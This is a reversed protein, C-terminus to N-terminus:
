SDSSDCSQSCVQSKRLTDQTTFTWWSLCSSVWHTPPCRRTMRMRAHCRAAFHHPWVLICSNSFTEVITNLATVIKLILSHQKHGSHHLYSLNGEHAASGPSNRVSNVPILTGTVNFIEKQVKKM